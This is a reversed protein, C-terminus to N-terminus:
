KILINLLMSILISVLLLPIYSCLLVYFGHFASKRGKFVWTNILESLVVWYIFEFGNLIQFLGVIWYPLQVEEIIMFISLPYFNLFDTLKFDDLFLFWCIKFVSALVFVFEALIVIRFIKRFPVKKNFFFFGIDLVFAIFFLKICLLLYPIFFRIWSKNKYYLNLEKYADGVLTKSMELDIIYNLDLIYYGIERVSFGTIILLLLVVINSLKM